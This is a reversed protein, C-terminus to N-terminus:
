TTSDTIIGQNALVTLLNQLAVNAATSGTVEGAAAITGIETNISDLDTKLKFLYDELYPTAVLPTGNSGDAPHILTQNLDLEESELDAM